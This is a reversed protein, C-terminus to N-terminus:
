KKPKDSERPQRYRVGAADLRKLHSRTLRQYFDQYDKKTKPSWCVEALASARPWTMYLAHPFSRIREGWLNGQAGLVIHYEKPELYDPIPEFSFVRQLSIVQYSFPLPEKVKDSSQAYDFYCFRTPSIVLSQGKKAANEVIKDARGSRWYMGIAGQKAGSELIEDWGVLLRGRSRVYRDIRQVFYGHLDVFNKLGEAEMRKKCASCQAWNRRTCEDGGIHIYPSPFVEMVEDLVNQLIEFTTEKGPCLESGIPQKGSEPPTCLLEPYSDCFAGAHGPMEIEPVITINRKAAYAVLNKMEEQTYYYGKPKGSVTPYSRDLGKTYGVNQAGISVLKPYRKIELRFGEHDTLHLQLRNLKHMAMYDVYCKLEDITYYFRAPDILIGRWAFRPKDWISVCPVDLSGVTLEPQTLNPRDWIKEPTKTLKGGLHGEAMASKCFAVPPMLQLLTVSGYFVGEPKPARVVISRSTVDLTYGEPGLKPDAGATTLLIAGEIPETTETQQADISKGFTRGLQEVLYDAADAVEKTYLIKTKPTVRMEGSKKTLRVPRPILDLNKVAAFSNGSAVLFSVSILTISLVANRM